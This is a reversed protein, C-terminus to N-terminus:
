SRHITILHRVLELDLARAQAFTTVVHFGYAYTHGSATWVLVLHHMFISGFNQDSPVYYFHMTHGAVRVTGRPRVDSPQVSGGDPHRKGPGDIARAPNHLVRPAGQVVLHEFGGPGANPGSLQSSGIIWGRWFTAGCGRKRDWGVIAFGPCGGAGPTGAIGKPLMTPCPVTYGVAHATQKCEKRVSPPARVFPVGAVTLGSRAAHGAASATAHRSGSNQSCGITALTAVLM